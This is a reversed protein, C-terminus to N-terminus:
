KYKKEWIYPDGPWPGNNEKDCKKRKKEVLYCNLLVIQFNREQNALSRNPSPLASLLALSTCQNLVRDLRNANSSAAYTLGNDEYCIRRDNWCQILSTFLLIFLIFKM